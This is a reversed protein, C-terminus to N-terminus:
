VFRRIGHAHGRERSGWNRSSATTSGKSNGSGLARRGTEITILNSYWLWDPEPEHRRATRLPRSAPTQAITTGHVAEEAWLFVELDLALGFVLAFVVVALHEGHGAHAALVVPDGRLERKQNCLM